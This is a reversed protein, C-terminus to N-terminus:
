IVNGLITKGVITIIGLNNCVPISYSDILIIPLLGSNSSPNLLRKTLEFIQSVLNMETKNLFCTRITYHNAIWLSFDSLWTWNEAINLKKCIEKPSTHTWKKERRWNHSLHNHLSPERAMTPIWDLLVVIFEFSYKTRTYCMIHLGWCSRSTWSSQIIEVSISRHSYWYIIMLFIKCVLFLIEKKKIFENINKQKQPMIVIHINM